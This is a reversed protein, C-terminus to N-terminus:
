EVMEVSDNGTEPDHSELFGPVDLSDGGTGVLVHNGVIIPAPTSFYEQKVDAIEKHWREKGTKRM